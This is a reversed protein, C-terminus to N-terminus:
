QGFTYQVDFYSIVGEIRTQKAICVETQLGCIFVAVFQRGSSGGANNRMWIIVVRCKKWTLKRANLLIEYFATKANVDQEFQQAM